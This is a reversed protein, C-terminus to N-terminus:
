RGHPRDDFDDKGTWYAIGLSIAVFVIAAVVLWSALPSLTATM